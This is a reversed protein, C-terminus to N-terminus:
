HPKLNVKKEVPSYCKATVYKSLSNYEMSIQITFNVCIKVVKELGNDVNHKNLLNEIDLLFGVKFNLYNLRTFRTCIGQQIRDLVSKM